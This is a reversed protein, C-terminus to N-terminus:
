NKNISLFYEFDYIFTSFTILILEKVLRYSATTKSGFPAIKRKTSSLKQGSYIKLLLGRKTRKHETSLDRKCSKCISDKNFKGGVKDLFKDLALEINCKSCVKTM